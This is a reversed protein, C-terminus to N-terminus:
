SQFNRNPKDAATKQSVKGEGLGTACARCLAQGQVTLRLKQWLTALSLERTFEPPPWITTVMKSIGTPQQPDDETYSKEGYKPIKTVRLQLVVSRPAITGIATGRYFCTSPPLMMGHGNTPPKGAPTSPNGEQTCCSTFLTVSPLHHLNEGETETPSCSLPATRIFPLFYHLHITLHSITLAKCVGCFHLIYGEQM